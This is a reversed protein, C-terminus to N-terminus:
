ILKEILELLSKQEFSSKIFYATAGSEMGKKRDKESGLSTLLILPVSKLKEDKRVNKTLEFGNMEPMEVDSVILDFKQQHLIEWAQAGNIATTVDYGAGELVNKLLVRSTISDEAVLIKKKKVAADEVEVGSFDSGSQFLDSTNLVPVLSGDGLITAGALFRVEELPPNLRKLLIEREDAIRDVILAMRKQGWNLILVNLKKHPDIQVPKLDLLSALEFVPINRGNVNIVKSGEISKLKTPEIRLPAEVIRTPIIYRQNSVEILIGRSTAMNLPLTILFSCGFPANNEIKVTGGLKEVNEAVVAMGLGRGSLRSVKESTSFGSKFILGLIQSETYQQLEEPKVLNKRLASEKVKQLDIGRGDDSIRIVINQERPPLVEITIKGKEPKGKLLREEPHEIGHDISNRIIHILPDKLEELVHKDLEIEGGIIKLEIQKNLERAISRTSTQLYNTITSFPFMMLQRIDTLHHEILASIQHKDNELTTYFQLLHKEFLYVNQLNANLSNIIQDLRDSHKAESSAFQKSYAVADQLQNVLNLWKSKNERLFDNLTRINKVYHDTKLKIMLLEESQNMLHDIRKFSVRITDSQSVSPKTSKKTVKKEKPKNQAKQIEAPPPTQTQKKPEVPTEKKEEVQPKEEKPAEPTKVPESKKTEPLEGKLAKQLNELVEFDVEQDPDDDHILESLEEVGALLVDLLQPTIEMENNKIRSFITEMVQCLEEIGSFNVARAAGKLSHTTRYIQELLEPNANNELEVLGSSLVNLYDEAESKFIEILEQTFDQDM